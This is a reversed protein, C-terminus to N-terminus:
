SRVRAPEPGLLRLLREAEAAMAERAPALYKRSDAMKPDSGLRERVVGTFVKNLHTAINVKTIGHTVAARLTADDVGSSGHLVLPVPVLAAIASVLELDVVADRSAM